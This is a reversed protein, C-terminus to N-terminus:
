KVQRELCKAGDVLMERWTKGLRKKTQVIDKYESEELITLIRKM